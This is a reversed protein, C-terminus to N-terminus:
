QGPGASAGGVEAGGRCLRAAGWGSANAVAPGVHRDGREPAHADRSEDAAPVATRALKWGRRRRARGPFARDAVFTQPADTGYCCGLASTNIGFSRRKDRGQRAFLFCFEGAPRVTSIRM